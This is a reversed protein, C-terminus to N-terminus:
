GEADLIERLVGCTEAPLRTLTLMRRALQRYVAAADPPLDRLHGRVVEVDGRAIPGTLTADAGRRELLELVGRALRALGDRAADRDTAPLADTALDILAVLGNATLAAAAHYAHHDADGLEILGAGLQGALDRALALAPPDGAVAFRFARLDVPVERPIPALPHLKGRAPGTLVELGHYGSAHLVVPPAGAEALRASVRAIADDSVLIWAADFTAAEELRGPTAVRAVQARDRAWCAVAHGQGLLAPAVARAVAGAGLLLIRRSM